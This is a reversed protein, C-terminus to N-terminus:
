SLSTALVTLVFRTPAPPFRRSLLLEVVCFRANLPGIKEVLRVVAPRTTNLLVALLRVPVIRILEPVNCALSSPESPVGPLADIM